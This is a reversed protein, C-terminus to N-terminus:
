NVIRRAHVVFRADDYEYTCTSLTLIQDEANLEIDKQYISKNQIRKLFDVYEEDSSFSVQIYPFTTDTIYVSFVEWEIEAFLTDFRVYGNEQFFEANKFKELEKFMTGNRMHHGYLITHRGQGNSDSRYDMFIAGGSATQKHIDRRLYFDNDDAQVVPYDIVTGPVSVWGVLDSNVDLLSMYRKMINRKGSTNTGKPLNDSVTTNGEEQLQQEYKLQELYQERINDYTSKEKHSVYLYSFIEYSSYLFVGLLIVILVKRWKM